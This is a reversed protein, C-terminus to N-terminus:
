MIRKKRELLCKGGGWGKSTNGGQSGCSFKLSGTRIGFLFLTLAVTFVHTFEL